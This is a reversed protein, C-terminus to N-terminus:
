GQTRDPNGYVISPLLQHHNSRTEFIFIQSGILNALGTRCSDMENSTLTLDTFHVATM